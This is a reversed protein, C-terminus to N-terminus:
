PGLADRAPEKAANDPSFEALMLTRAHNDKRLCAVRGLATTVVTLAEFRNTAALFARHGINAYALASVM